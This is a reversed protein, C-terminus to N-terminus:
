VSGGGNILAQAYTHLEDLASGIDGVNDDFYKKNVCDLDSTPANTKLKGGSTYPALAYQLPSHSVKFQIAAGTHDIGPVCNYGGSDKTPKVMAGAWECAAKKEDDTLTQSNTTLSTKVALDLNEPTIARNSTKSAIDNAHAKCVGLTKDSRLELGYYTSAIKVTGYNSYDAKGIGLWGQAAQREEDTLTIANNVLGEKVAYDVRKAVIPMYGDTKAKIRAEDACVISLIGNDPNIYTGYAANSRVLGVKNSSGYDTNKVYDALDVKQTELAALVYYGIQLTGEKVAEAIAEDNIYEYSLYETSVDYIWLDPVGLTRVLLHQARVYDTSSASNLDRVLETYDTFSKGSVAGKALSDIEKIESDVYGKTAAHMDETPTGVILTGGANRIPITNVIAEREMGYTDPKDNSTQVYVRYKKTTNHIIPVTEQKIDNSISNKVEDIEAETWYDVGKVPTYGDEGKIVNPEAFDSDFQGGSSTFKTNFM